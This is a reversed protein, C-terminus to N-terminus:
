RQVLHGYKGKIYKDPDDGPGKIERVKELSNGLPFVDKWSNRISRNLVENADDGAAKFKELEKIILETARLTPPAKKAKRMELFADWTEKKIWEPLVIDKKTEKKPVTPNPVTPYQLSPTGLSKRPLESPTGLSKRHRLRDVERSRILKGAYDDWDHIKGDKDIWGAERLAEGFSSCISDFRKGFQHSRGELFGSVEALVQDSVEM